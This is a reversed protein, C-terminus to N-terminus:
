KEEHFVIAEFVLYSAGEKWADPPLGAKQSLHTLTTALDWGQEPAVQPLFVASSGQKSLVMGHKGIVIDHWSNVPVPPTLASIEVHIRPLEAAVVPTFRPDAFAANLAQERVAEVLPRRPFIEGICGRLDGDKQLTVFTGMVQKMAPTVTIGFDEPRARKGTKLQTEIMGRALKLLAKKDDASLPAAAEAKPMAGREWTGTFAACLYSVSNNFDGVIHGSTDYKVLHAVANAPLMALLIGIPDHGCITAGTKDLYARFAPLDKAAIAEYAGLDLKKLNAEVNTHFPLYGYNPGYHTFDSSAVVLTQKDVLTLLVEAIRRTASEDLQGVVIPVLKFDGLAMQLLPLQIEVSHEGHGFAATNVFPQGRLTALAAVDLPIEGLPTSLATGDPVAIGNELAIRHSPGLVIVRSFKRGQVLKAGHAAVTGSYQYGAHPQILACVNALPEPQAAAFYGSLERQLANSDATYWSGAIESPLVKRAPENKTKMDGGQCSCLLSASMLMLVLQTAKM